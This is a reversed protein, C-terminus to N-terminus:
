EFHYVYRYLKHEKLCTIFKVIMPLVVGIIELKEDNGFLM